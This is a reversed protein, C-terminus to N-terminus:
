KKLYNVLDTYGGILKGDIFVQPFSAWGSWLKIALRQKWKSFYGGYTLYTYVMQKEDLLKRAKKVFPNAAMGVVVIKNNIVANMVEDVTSKYNHSICKLAEPHIQSSALIKREM